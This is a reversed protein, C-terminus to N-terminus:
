FILLLILFLFLFYYYLDPVERRYRYRHNRIPLHSVEVRERVHHLPLETAKLWVSYKLGAPWAGKATPARSLSLSVSVPSAVSPLTTSRCRYKTTRADSRAVDKSQLMM